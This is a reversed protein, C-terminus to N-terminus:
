FFNEICPTHEGEIMYTKNAQGIVKFNGIEFYKSEEGLAFKETIEFDSFSYYEVYGVIQKHRVELGISTKVLTYQCRDSLNNDFLENKGRFFLELENLDVTSSGCNLFFLCLVFVKKM